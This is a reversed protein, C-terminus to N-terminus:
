GMVAVFDKFSNGAQNRSLVCEELVIDYGAVASLDRM